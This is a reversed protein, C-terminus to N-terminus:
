MDNLKMIYCVTENPSNHVELCPSVQIVKGLIACKAVDIAVDNAISVDFNANLLM